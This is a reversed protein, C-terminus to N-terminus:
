SNPRRTSVCPKVAVVARTRQRGGAHAAATVVVLGLMVLSLALARVGAPCGPYRRVVAIRMAVLAAGGNGAALALAPPREDPRFLRAWGL